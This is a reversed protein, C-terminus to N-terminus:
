LGLMERMREIRRKWDWRAGLAKRFHVVWVVSWIVLAVEVGLVVWIM